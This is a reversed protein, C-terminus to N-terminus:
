TLIATGWAPVTGPFPVVRASYTSGEKQYKTLVYGSTASPAVVGFVPEGTEWYHRVGFLIAFGLPTTFTPAALPNLVTRSGSLAAQAGSGAAAQAATTSWPGGFDIACDPHAALYGKVQDQWATVGSQEEDYVFGVPSMTNVEVDRPTGASDDILVRTWKDVTRGTQVAM